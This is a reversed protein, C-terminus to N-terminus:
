ENYFVFRSVVYGVIAIMTGVCLFYVLYMSTALGYQNSGFALNQVYIFLQSDSRSFADVITYVSCVLIQPTIMPFTIKWFLQWQDCGEVKAAEYLSGPIEQLGALFIFIQMGSQLVITSIGAVAGSVLGTLKDSFSLSYLLNELGALDVGGGSLGVDLVRNSEATAIISTASEVRSIIGTALLVPLFFIARAVSRGRFNQNLMVAILLSFLIIVPIQTGLTQLSSVLLVLFRPDKRFAVYYNESGMWSLRFGDDTLVIDNFSFRVTDLMNPIFLLLLGVIFPFAFVLGYMQRKKVLGWKPLKKM